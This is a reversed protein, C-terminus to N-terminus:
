KGLLRLMEEEDIVPIGLENAKALKSGAAEGAIVLDTKKSVSGTVKAGLAALKDKAEDRSLRSLSGTLVVTKGALPSDIEDLNPSEVSEWHIGITNVLDDIVAQNHPENFFNVVHSAVIGGVDQVEILSEIDAARLKELTGFHSVLNAATAEGVERIGLSYIFRAFTTKKSKELANIVNQASKPGMRELGTLKGATLRFLDAPTKVYEKDVLQEIIKEGMGDVDMARRSVFHRLAEKRQAGCFLGGTCRAVAEGEVREIDSGCVPCHEPFIVEQRETLKDEHVVGVVQPIVDGARRIIVTDGIRLGLREIEDANHLTANSVTVGAVSVPELRAVPTIAGTRGVQFEVDRVVTMQEQAPFKFATAWRPARSVFGLTEQLEISNVKAVIGDIDFGLTPRQQEIDRYFDMVQQTGQCLKVKESVPLGWQKFKMLREYHSEPLEGGELVGVGYCYFTLPRKATIRPDLQRLSGAAANRPNAFVKNGTRRAEENLKEFGAQKMFVEGRIEVRAPIDEGKLRLPIARITRVNTTINEGMTGDGRTAAQVLEGNEYLLSVALGDLKLECCFVLDQSDKLRDHVRKDFALYSEEDFVNDLSLMPIEHRVQEFATLPAAGVRQTPSDATILAPHEEELAKLERMLRDYETDPIEPADMVHYLYEHHRLLERLKKIEIIINEM